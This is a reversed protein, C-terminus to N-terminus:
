QPILFSGPINRDFTALVAANARALRALHGDTVQKPWKVWTPLVEAGDADAIFSFILGDGRKLQNLMERAQAIGGYSPMQGVIRVFGLETIACTAFGNSEAIPGAWDVARSHLTHEQVGWAILASVDLLYTM